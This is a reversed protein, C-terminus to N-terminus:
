DTTALGANWREEVRGLKWVAIAVAWSVVFLAVIGYGAYDLPIEGIAALPGTTIHAQDDLVGILEITGIILAVAVSISTITLNYFVKRVPKAFAWGYAANMFVGDVTDMLCMGAAFLIPLVLISYFPLNFAAAGGALVLLGVETATDFGLGFLVGIPYIHWPKRVSKTLGSLFRNMFGRKNLQEELAAEDFRGRRMQRFVRLIGLLVVLNLIGLIWLFVGSVSAGIVGTISHLGSDDNEVQGALAKVGVSLLVALGFVITSHGLSFWFGVSLPKRDTDDALLKRTTNDVAAIHDADFAHRLGFTYALVGVGVTFVPHAGGLHFHKPAVLGFLAGFGVVHLLVIFGAMGALARRDRRTLSARFRALSSPIAVDTSSM